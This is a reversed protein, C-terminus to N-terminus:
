CNANMEFHLILMIDFADSCYSLTRCFYSWMDGVKFIESLSKSHRRGVHLNSHSFPSEDLGGDTM